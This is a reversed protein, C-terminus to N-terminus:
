RSKGDYEKITITKLNIGELCRLNIAVVEKTGGPAIGKGFSLIGCNKCFYHHILKKNFLYDQLENEGCLLKFQSEPIFDLLSGRKMCISCNCSIANKLNLEVEYQVKGCHCGGLYKKMRYDGNIKKWRNTELAFALFKM